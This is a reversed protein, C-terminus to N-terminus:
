FSHPVAVIFDPLHCPTIVYVTVSQSIITLDTDSFMMEPNECEKLMGLRGQALASGLDAISGEIINRVLAQSACEMSEDIAKACDLPPTGKCM